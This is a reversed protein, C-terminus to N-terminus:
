LPKKAGDAPLLKAADAALRKVDDASTGDYVGVVSGAPNVLLFKESHMIPSDPAAPKVSIKMAYAADSMQQQSGTLFHWRAFDAHFSEGYNKLVPPTDNAPDVTFSVLHVGPPTHAQLQAMQASMKPCVSGCTTFIFDAIWPRGHLDATAFPKGTQDTLTLNPAPYLEQVGQPDPTGPPDSDHGPHASPHPLLIKGVGLGVMAVVILGWLAITIRKQVLGMAM